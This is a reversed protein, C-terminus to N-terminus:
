RMGRLKAAHADDVGFLNEIVRNVEVGFTSGAANYRDIDAKYQGQFKKLVEDAAGGFETVGLNSARASIARAIFSDASEGARAIISQLVPVDARNVKISM